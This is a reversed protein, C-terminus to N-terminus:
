ASRSNLPEVVAIWSQVGVPVPWNLRTLVLDSNLDPSVIESFRFSGSPLGDQDAMIGITVPATSGRVAAQVTDIRSADPQGTFPVAIAIPKLLAGSAPYTDLIIAAEARGVALFPLAATILAALVSKRM